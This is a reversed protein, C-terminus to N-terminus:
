SSKAAKKLWRFVLGIGIFVALVLVAIAAVTMGKEGLEAQAGTLVSEFTPAQQAMADRAATLLGLGVAIAPAAFAKAISFVTTVASMCATLAQKAAHRVAQVVQAARSLVIQFPNRM